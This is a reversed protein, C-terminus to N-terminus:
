PCASGYPSTSCSSIYCPLFSKPILPQHRSENVLLVATFRPSFISAFTQRPAEMGCSCGTGPCGPPWGSADLSRGGKTHRQCAAFAAKNTLYPATHLAAPSKHAADLLLGEGPERRPRKLVTASFICGPQPQAAM